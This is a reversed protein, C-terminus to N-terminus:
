YGAAVAAAGGDPSTYIRRRRRKLGKKTKGSLKPARGTHKSLEKIAAATSKMETHLSGLGESFDHSGLEDLRNSQHEGFTRSATHAAARAAADVASENVHHTDDMKGLKGTATAHAKESKATIEKLASQALVQKAHLDELASQATEARRTFEAHHEDIKQKFDAQQTKFAEHDALVAAREANHAALMTAHEQPTKPKFEDGIEKDDPHPAAEKWDDSKDPHPHDAALGPHEPVEVADHQEHDDYTHEEHTKSQDAMDNHTQSFEEALQDPHAHDLELGKAAVKGNDDTIDEHTHANVAGLADLAKAHADHLAGIHEDATKDHEAHQAAYADVIDRADTSIHGAAIARDENDRLAQEDARSKKDEAISTMAAGHAEEPSAARAYGALLHAGDANSRMGADGGHADHEVHIRAAEEVRAQHVAAERAAHSGTADGQESHIRAVEGRIGAQALNHVSDMAHLDSAYRDRVASAASGLREGNASAFDRNSLSATEHATLPVSASAVHEARSLRNAHETVFHHDALSAAGRARHADTVTSAHLAAAAHEGGAAAGSGDGPGFKGDPARPHKDEEFDGAKTIRAM